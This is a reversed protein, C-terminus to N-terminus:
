EPQPGNHTTPVPGQIRATFDSAVKGPGLNGSATMGDKKPIGRLGGRTADQGYTNRLLFAMFAEPGDFLKGNRPDPTYELIRGIYLIHDRKIGDVGEQLKITLELPIRQNGPNTAYARGGIVIDPLEELDEMDSLDLDLDLDDISDDSNSNAVTVVDPGDELALTRVKRVEAVSVDGFGPIGRLKTLSLKDIQKPKTIGWDKLASVARKSFVYPGFIMNTAAM